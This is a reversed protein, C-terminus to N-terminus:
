ANSAPAAHAIRARAAVLSLGDDTDMYYVYSVGYSTTTGVPDCSPPWRANADDCLTAAHRTPRIARLEIHQENAADTHSSLLM